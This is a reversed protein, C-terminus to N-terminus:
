PRRSITAAGSTSQFSLSLPSADDGAFDSSVYGAVSNLSLKLRADAPLAAALDGSGTRVDIEGTRPAAAWELSVAGSDTVVRAPGTLGRLYVDGAGTVVDVTGGAGLDGAVSGSGTRVAVAGATGFLSIAGSDTRADVAGAFAGIEVGGSGSRASVRLRAPATVTFGASCPASATAPLARLTLTGSSLTREFRCEDRAAAAVPEVSARDVDADDLTIAGGVTEVVIARLGAAAYSKAAPSAGAAAPAACLLLVLARPPSMSLRM